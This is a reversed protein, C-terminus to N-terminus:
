PVHARHVLNPLEKVLAFDDFLIQGNGLVRGRYVIALYVDWKDAPIDVSDGFDTM